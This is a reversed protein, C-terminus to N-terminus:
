HNNSCSTAKNMLHNFMLHQSSLGGTSVLGRAERANVLLSSASPAYPELIDPVVLMQPASQGPRLAYFQVASDFTAIGVLARDGGPPRVLFPKSPKGQLAPAQSKYQPSLGPCQGGACSSSM